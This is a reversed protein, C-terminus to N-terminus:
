CRSPIPHAVKCCMYQCLKQLHLLTFTDNLLYLNLLQLSHVTGSSDCHRGGKQHVSRVSASRLLRSLCTHLLRHCRHHATSWGIDACQTSDTCMFRFYLCIVRNIRLPICIHCMLIASAQSQQATVGYRLYADM